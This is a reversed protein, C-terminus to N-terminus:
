QDWWVRDFITITSPSPINSNAFQEAESYPLRRPIANGTHPVLNPVGSRRWDNFTEPSTYLAIYKQIMIDEMTVSTGYNTAVYSLTDPVGAEAFSANVGAEFAIFAGAADGTGMLAEARIFEQESFSLLPLDRDPTFVPHGPVAHEFGYTAVRPDDLSNLLAKYSAGTECDDRQEIYQFWPANETATVGFKLSADNAADTYGGRNLATLVDAYANADVKSLHLKGRAELLNAFAIWNAVDGGYILDDSGVAVGGNDGALLTRAQELNSFISNYIDQQRDIAPAYVGNDAFQLADSYPVDGWFDTATMITFSEVILGLALYHNAGSETALNKMVQNSNLIGSYVNSWAADLDGPVIGYNQYVVFQRGVGDVHQTNIGLYRTYDGGYLYAMRLQVQPLLVNVTSSIPNDPDVNSDDGFYSECGVINLALLCIFIYKLSKM